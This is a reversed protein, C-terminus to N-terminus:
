ARNAVMSHWFKARTRGTAFVEGEQELKKLMVYIKQGADGKSLYSQTEPINELRLVLETRQLPEDALLKLVWARTAMMSAKYSVRVPDQPFESLGSAGARESSSALAIEGRDTEVVYGDTLLMDREVNSIRERKQVKDLLFAVHLPLDPNRFLAHTYSRDIEHNYLDVKVRQPDSLDYTPLPMRRKISNQYVTRIGMSSQDLLRVQLMADCLFPNRYFPPKYGIGLATEITGPIFGGENMIEIRDPFENINIKGGRDYAQHAIANGILERLSWADYEPIERPILSDPDELLRYKENRIKGLLRDINLLFPPTFHEYTRVMGDAEYLSWTIKPVAGEFYSLSEESGLLILATNTISGRVTIGMKDLMELDDLADILGEREGYREKLKERAATVAAPDLQEITAGPVTKKSWDLPPQSRIEDIKSMPLPVLHEHERAYAAGAWLTPIGRTAAPIEFAVVRKGEDLFEYIDKFTIRNNTVNAIEKKLSQLGRSPISQEKCYATGCTTGDDHVGFLLWASRVGKLNAENSLASFYRGLDGTKFSQKAEKFELIENEKNLKLADIYQKIDSYEMIKGKFRWIKDIFM